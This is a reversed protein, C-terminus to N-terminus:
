RSARMAIEGCTWATVLWGRRMEDTPIPPPRHERAIDVITAVDDVLETPLSEDSRLSALLADVRTENRGRLLQRYRLADVAIRAIAIAEAVPDGAHPEPSILQEWLRAHADQCFHRAACRLEAETPRPLVSELPAGSIPEHSDLLRAALLPAFMALDEAVDAHLSLRPVEGALDRAISMWEGIANRDRLLVILDVDSHRHRAGPDATSGGIVACRVDERAGLRAAFKARIAGIELAVPSVNRAITGDENEEVVAVDQGEPVLQAIVGAIRRRQWEQFANPPRYRIRITGQPSPEVEFSSVRLEGFFKKVRLAIRDSPSTNASRRSTVSFRPRPDGCGCADPLWEGADGTRYRLLIMARNVLPTILIEGDEIELFANASVHYGSSTACAIGAIGTESLAYQTTVVTSFQESLTRAFAGINEGSLVIALPRPPQSDAPLTAIVSPLGTVIAGDLFRMARRQAEEGSQSLRSLNWKIAMGGWPARWATSTAEPHIAVHIVLRQRWDRPLLRDLHSAFVAGEAALAADDFVVEVPQGTTGSSRAVHWSSADGTASILRVRERQLEARTLPRISRLAAVASEFSPPVRAAWFPSGARASELLGRLRKELKESM